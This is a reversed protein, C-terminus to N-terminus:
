GRKRWMRVVIIYVVATTFFEAPILMAALMKNPLFLVYCVSAIVAMATLAVALGLERNRLKQASQRSIDDEFPM